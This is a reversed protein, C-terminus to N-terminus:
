QIYAPQRLFLPTCVRTGKESTAYIFRIISIFFNNIQLCQNVGGRLTIELLKTSNELETSYTNEYSKKGRTKITAKNIWDREEQQLTNYNTATTGKTNLIESTLGWTKSLIARNKPDSRRFQEQEKYAM